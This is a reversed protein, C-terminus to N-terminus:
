GAQNGLRMSWKGPTTVSVFAPGAPLAIEFANPGTRHALITAQGGSFTDIEFPARGTVVVQARAEPGSYALVADGHGSVGPPELTPALTPPAIDLHWPGATSVRLHTTAAGAVAVFGVPVTGDYAGLSNVLVAADHGDAAVARVVFSSTGRYRAHLLAAPGVVTPLAVTADGTGEVAVVPTTTGSPQLVYRTTIRPPVTTTTAPRPTTTAPTTTTPAPSSGGNSGSCATALAALV